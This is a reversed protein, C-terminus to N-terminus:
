SEYFGEVIWHVSLAFLFLAGASVAAAAVSTAWCAIIDGLDDKPGGGLAVLVYHSLWVWAPISAVVLLRHVGLM